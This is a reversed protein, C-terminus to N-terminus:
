ECELSAVQDPLFGHEPYRLVKSSLLMDLEYLGTSFPKYQQLIRACLVDKAGFYEAGNTSMGNSWYRLHYYYLEQLGRQYAKIMQEWTLGMSEPRMQEVALYVMADLVVGARGDRTFDGDRYMRITGYNVIPLEM